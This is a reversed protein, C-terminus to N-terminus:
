TLLDSNYPHLYCTSYATFCSCEVIWKSENSATWPNMRLEAIIFDHCFVTSSNDEGENPRRQLSTSCGEGPDVGEASRGAAWNPLAARGNGRCGDRWRCCCCCCCCCSPPFRPGSSLGALLHAVSRLCSSHRQFSCQICMRTQVCFLVGAAQILPSTHSRTLPHKMQVQDPTKHWHTNILTHTLHPASPCVVVPSCFSYLVFTTVRHNGSLPDSILCHTLLSDM